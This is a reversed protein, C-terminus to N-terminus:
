YNKRKFWPLVGKLGVIVLCVVSFLIIVVVTFQAGGAQYFFGSVNDWIYQMAQPAWLTIITSSPTYM